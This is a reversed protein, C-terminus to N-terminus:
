QGANEDFLSYPLENGGSDVYEHDPTNFIEGQHYYAGALVTRFLDGHWCQGRMKSDMYPGMFWAAPNGYFKQLATKVAWWYVGFTRYVTPSRELLPGVQIAFRKLWPDGGGVKLEKELLDVFGDDYYGSM